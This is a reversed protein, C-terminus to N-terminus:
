AAAPVFRLAVGNMCYRLGTPPPGDAFVHGLHGDCTACRVETRAMGFSGDAVTLVADPLPRFFSPWGTGSDFKTGADFLATRCGACAYRGAAHEGDLPSSFPFETGARRLVRFEAPTLLARWAADTHSVPFVRGAAGATTALAHPAGGVLRVGAWVALGTTGGLLLFSRRSGM